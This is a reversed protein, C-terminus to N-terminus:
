RGTQRAAERAAHDILRAVEETHSLFSMHSSRIAVIHAGIREAIVQQVTARLAQDDDTKLYWSPKDHWAAHAVKEGLAAAVIPQQVAVLQRATKLPLDAAMFQHFQQPDDMWVRGEPDPSLGNMPADIKTMLDQVSEASDPALASLYVLGKVNAANGAQTIVAGGWSHGVLLVDGSQRRLVRETASVDDALSTLPNQVAAVHYGMAQLRTILPLWSSGDTLAGHVLVINHVAPTPKSAAAMAPHAAVVLSLSIAAALLRLPHFPTRM